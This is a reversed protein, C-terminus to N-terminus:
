SIGLKAKLDARTADNLTYNDKSIENLKDRLRGLYLTLNNVHSTKYFGTATKADAIIEERTHTQKGEVFELHACAALLLDKGKGLGLKAAINGTTLQIGRGKGVDKGTGEHAAGSGSGAKKGSSEHIHMVDSVLELLKEKEFEKDGEYEVEVPGLKVRFKFAM